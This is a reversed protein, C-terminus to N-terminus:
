LISNCECEQRGVTEMGDFLKYTKFSQMASNNSLSTQPLVMHMCTPIEKQTTDKEFLKHGVFAVIFSGKKKANNYAHSPRWRLPFFFDSRCLFLDRGFGSVSSSNSSNSAAAM